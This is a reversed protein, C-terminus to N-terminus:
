FQMDYVFLQYTQLFYSHIGARMVSDDIFTDRNHLLDKEFHRWESCLSFVFNEFYSVVMFIIEIIKKVVVLKNSLQEILFILKIQTLYIYAKICGDLVVLELFIVYFLGIGTSLLLEILHPNKFQLRAWCNQFFVTVSLLFVDYIILFGLWTVGVVCIDMKLNIFWIASIM